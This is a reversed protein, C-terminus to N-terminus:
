PLLLSQDEDGVPPIAFGFVPSILHCVADSGSDRPVGSNIPLNKHTVPLLVCFRYTTTLVHWVLHIGAAVKIRPVGIDICYIVALSGSLLDHVFPILYNMEDRM